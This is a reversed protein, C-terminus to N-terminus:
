ILHKNRLSCSLSPAGPLCHQVNSGDRVGQYRVGHRTYLPSEALLRKDYCIFDLGKKQETM